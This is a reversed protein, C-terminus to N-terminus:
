FTFEGYLTEYLAKLHNFSKTVFYYTLELEDQIEKKSVAENNTQLAVEVIDSVEDSIGKALVRIRECAQLIKDDPKAAEVPSASGCFPSSEISELFCQPSEAGLASVHILQYDCGRSESNKMRRLDIFHNRIARALYSIFDQGHKDMARDAVKVACLMGEAYLDEFPTASSRSHSNALFRVLRELQDYYETIKENRAKGPHKAQFKEARRAKVQARLDEKTLRASSPHTNL